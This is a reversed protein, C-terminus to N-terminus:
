SSQMVDYDTPGMVWSGDWRDKLLKLHRVELRSPLTLIMVLLVVSGFCYRSLHYMLPTAHLFMCALSWRRGQQLHSTHCGITADGRSVMRFQQDLYSSGPRQYSKSLQYQRCEIKTLEYIYTSISWSYSSSEIHFFSYRSWIKSWIKALLPFLHSLFSSFYREIHDSFLLIKLPFGYIRLPKYSFLPLFIKQLGLRVVVDVDIKPFFLDWRRKKRSVSAGRWRGGMVFYM